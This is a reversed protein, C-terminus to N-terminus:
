LHKNLISQINLHNIKVSTFLNNKFIERLDFIAHRNSLAMENMEHRVCFLVTFLCNKLIEGGHNNSSM